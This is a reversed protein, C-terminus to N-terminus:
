QKEFAAIKINISKKEYTAIKVCLCFLEMAKEIEEISPSTPAIRINRDLPDIGYPFTAGVDTLILGAEKCLQWVRKACGPLTNFSIFYGGKPRSYDSIDSVERDLIDLVCKFKPAIIEKHKKMIEKIGDIDKLFNIHMLQNIKNNGITQVSMIKKIFDINAKSAALAAVGSGSFTIKSTSAFEIILDPNEAVDFINLLKDPFDVLHHVCYANDWYIRFDKAKPKLKGFRKVVNDSYTTGTPNSYMPVCWIGKISDDSAVLQEVMDMDPGNSLMPITIMEINFLQCIAFHRDYGPSPCLFKVKKLKNWPISGMVGFNISRSISDFMMNLSSSGGVIINEQKVELMQAFLNRMSPIGELIGYNRMDVGNETYNETMDINLMQLSLNLQEKSPKGRSMDLSLNQSKYEDYKNLLEQYM